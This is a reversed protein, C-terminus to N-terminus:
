NRNHAYYKRALYMLGAFPLSWIAWNAYFEWTKLASRSDDIFTGTDIISGTATTSCTYVISNAAVRRSFPKGGTVRASKVSVSPSAATCLSIETQQQPTPFIEDKSYHNNIILSTILGLIVATTILYKNV